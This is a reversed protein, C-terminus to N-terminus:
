RPDGIYGLLERWVANPDSVGTVAFEAARQHMAVPRAFREVGHYHPRDLYDDFIVATGAAAHLLTALFCAVRFRGDVLVVDPSLGRSSCYAWARVPYTAYDKWNARSTPYGWKGTPGIDVHILEARTSSGLARVKHGVAALWDPDSETTVIEPVNMAAATVTTGGSGYEMYCTATELLHRLRDAAVDPMLPADSISTQAAPSTTAFRLSPWQGRWLRGAVRLPRTMRWSRSALVQQLHADRDAVRQELAALSARLNCAESRSQDLAQLLDGHDDLTNRTVDVGSVPAEM